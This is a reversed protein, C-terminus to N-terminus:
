RYHMHNESYVTTQHECTELTMMPFSPMIDVGARDHTMRFNSVSPPIISVAECLGPPGLASKPMLNLIALPPVDKESFVALKTVEVCCTILPIKDEANM